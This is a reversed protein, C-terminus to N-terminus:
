CDLDKAPVSLSVNLPPGMDSKFLDGLSVLEQLGAVTIVVWQYHRKGFLDPLFAQPAMSQGEKSAM